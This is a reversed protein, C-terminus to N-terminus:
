KFFFVFISLLKKSENFSRYIFFLLWRSTKLDKGKDRGNSRPISEFGLGWAGSRCLRPRDGHRMCLYMSLLICMFAPPHLGRRCTGRLSARVCLDFLTHTRSVTHVRLWTRHGISDFFEWVRVGPRSKRDRVEAAASREFDSLKFIIFIQVNFDSNLKHSTPRKKKKKAALWRNVPAM